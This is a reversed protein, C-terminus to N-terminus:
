LLFTEVLERFVYTPLFLYLVFKVNCYYGRELQFEVHAM